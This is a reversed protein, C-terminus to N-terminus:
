SRFRPDLWHLIAMFLDPWDNTGLESRAGANTKEVAAHESSETLPLEDGEDDERESVTPREADTTAGHVPITAAVKGDSAVLELSSQDETWRM